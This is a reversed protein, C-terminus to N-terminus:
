NDPVLELGPTGPAQLFKLPSAIRGLRDADLPPGLAAALAPDVIWVAKLRHDQVDAIKLSCVLGPAPAEPEHPARRGPAPAEPKPPARRGPAPAEPEHSPEDRRRRGRWSSISTM